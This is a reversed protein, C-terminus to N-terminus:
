VRGGGGVGGGWGVGTPAVCEQFRWMGSDEFDLLLNARWVHDVRVRIRVRGRGRGRVRVRVRARVRVRVRVRVKVGVM